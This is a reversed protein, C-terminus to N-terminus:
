RSPANQLTNTNALVPQNAANERPEPAPILENVDAGFYEPALARVGQLYEYAFQKGAPHDDYSGNLYSIRTAEYFNEPNERVEERLDDAIENALMGVFETGFGLNRGSVANHLLAVTESDGAELGERMQLIQERSFGSLEALEDEKRKEFFDMYLDAIYGDMSVDMGMRQMTIIQAHILDENISHPTEAFQVGAENGMQIAYGTNHGFDSNGTFSGIARAHMFNAPVNTDSVNGLALERAYQEIMFRDGQLENSYQSFVSTFADHETHRAEHMIVAAQWDRDDGTLNRLHNEPIGTMESVINNRTADTAIGILAPSDNGFGARAFFMDEEFFISAQKSFARYIRSELDGLDRASFSDGAIHQFADRLNDARRPPLRTVSSQPQELDHKSMVVVSPANTWAGIRDAIWGLEDYTRQSMRVATPGNGNSVQQDHDQESGM